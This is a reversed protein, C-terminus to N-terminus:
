ILLLYYTILFYYFKRNSPKAEMQTAPPPKKTDWFLQRTLRQSDLVQARPPRWGYTSSWWHILIKSKIANKEQTLV